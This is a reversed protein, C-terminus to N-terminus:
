ASVALRSARFSYWSCHELSVAAIAVVTTAERDSRRQTEHQTERHTTTLLKRLRTTDVALHLRQGSATTKISNAVVHRVVEGLQAYGTACLERDNDAMEPTCSVCATQWKHRVVEGPIRATYVARRGHGGRVQQHLWSASCARALHRDLTRLPVGAAAAVDDRWAELIGDPNMPLSLLTAKVPRMGVPFPTSTVARRWMTRRSM